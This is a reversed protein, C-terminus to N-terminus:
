FLKKQSFIKNLRSKLVGEMDRYQDALPLVSDFPVSVFGGFNEMGELPILDESSKMPVLNGLQDVLFVGKNDVTTRWSGKNRLDQLYENQYDEQNRGEPTDPFIIRSKLYETDESISHKLVATMDKSRASLATPVRMQSGNIDEFVFHNGIVARYAIDVAAQPDIVNNALLHKAANGIAIQMQSTHATRQGDEDQGVVGDGIGGRISSSYDNLVSRVLADVENREDISLQTTFFDISGKANGEVVVGINATNPHAARLHEAFTITNTTMLHRMVRNENASGFSEVFNKLEQGKDAGEANYRAKFATLDANSTVRVDQPAIGMQLQMNVFESPTLPQEPNKKNYYGVFDEGLQKDRAGILKGFKTIARAGRATSANEQLRELEANQDSLSSFEVSKFAATADATSNFDLSFEDAKLLEGADRLSTEINAASEQMEPTMIGDNDSIQAQLNEADVVSKAVAKPALDNIQKNVVTELTNRVSLSYGSYPGTADQLNDKTEQLQALTQSAFSKSVNEIINREDETIKINRQTRLSSIINLRENNPMGSLSINIVEDDRQIQIDGTEAQSMATDFEDESLFAAFVEGKIRKKEETVFASQQVVINADIRSRELETIGTNNKNLKKAKEFDQWSSASNTITAIDEAVAGSRWSKSTYSIKNGAQSASLIIDEASAAYAKKLDPDTTTAFEKQLQALRKNDLNGRFIKGNTAAKQQADISGKLLQRQLRARVQRKQNRTLDSDELKKFLPKSVDEEFKTKASETTTFENTEQFTSANEIASSEFEFGKADAEAKKEMMGFKFATDAVQKGFGALARGPAEFASTARPGLPGAALETQQQYIPIKPM